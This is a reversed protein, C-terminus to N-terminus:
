RNKSTSFKRSFEAKEGAKVAIANGNPYYPVFGTGDETFGMELLEMESYEM